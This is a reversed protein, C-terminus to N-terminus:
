SAAFYALLAFRATAMFTVATIGPGHLAQWKLLWPDSLVALIRGVGRDPRAHAVARRLTVGFLASFVVVVGAAALLLNMGAPPGIVATLVAALGGLAAAGEAVQVLWQTSQPLPLEGRRILDLTALLLTAVTLGMMGALASHLVVQAVPLGQMAFSSLGLAGAVTLALLVLAMAFSRALVPGLKPRVVELEPIPARELGAAYESLTESLAGFDQPRVSPDADLLAEVLMRAAGPVAESIPNDPLGGTLAAKLILGLGYADVAPTDARGEPPAHPDHASQSLPAFGFGTLRARGLADILVRDPRVDRHNVGAKRAARLALAVQSAWAFAMSPPPPEDFALKDALSWGEVFEMAVYHRADVRGVDLIRVVYPSAISAAAILAGGRATIFAQNAAADNALVKLAVRAGSENDRGAYVVSQQGRAVIRELEYPGFTGLLEEARGEELLLSLGEHGDETPEEVAEEEFLPEVGAVLPAEDPELLTEVFDVDFDLDAGQPAAPGSHLEPQAPEYGDVSVPSRLEQAATSVSHEMSQRPVIEPLDETGREVTVSAAPGDDGRLARLLAEPLPAVITHETSAFTEPPPEPPSPLEPEPAAEFSPAEDFRTVPPPQPAPGVRSSEPLPPEEIVSGADENFWPVPEFRTVEPPPGEPAAWPRRHADAEDAPPAEASVQPIASGLPRQPSAPPTAARPPTAVSPPAPRGQARRADRPLGSPAAGAAAPRPRRSPRASVQPPAILSLSRIVTQERRVPEPKPAAPAAETAARGFLPRRRGVAKDAAASLTDLAEDDLYGRRRIIQEISHKSGLKRELALCDEGQEATLWRWRCALRVLQVDRKSTM